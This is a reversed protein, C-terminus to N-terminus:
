GGTESIVENLYLSSSYLLKVFYLIVKFLSMSHVLNSLHRFHGFKLKHRM